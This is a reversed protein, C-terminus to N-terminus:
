PNVPDGKFLGDLRDSLLRWCREHITALLPSTRSRWRGEACVVIATEQNSMVKHCVKCMRRKGPSPTVDLRDIAM